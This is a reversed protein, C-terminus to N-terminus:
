CAESDLWVQDLAGRRLAPRAVQSGRDTQICRLEPGCCSPGLADAEAIRAVKPIRTPWRVAAPRRVRTPTNRQGSPLKEISSLRRDRPEDRTCRM